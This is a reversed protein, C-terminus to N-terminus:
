FPLLSEFEAIQALFSAEQDILGLASLVQNQAAQFEPYDLWHWGYPFCNGKEVAPFEARFYTYNKGEVRCVDGSGEPCRYYEVANFSSNKM